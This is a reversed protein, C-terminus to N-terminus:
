REFRKAPHQEQLVKLCEQVIQRKLAQLEEQRLQRAAPLQGSVISTKIVLERIEVSM